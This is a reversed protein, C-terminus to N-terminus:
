QAVIFFFVLDNYSVGARRLERLLYFRKAAKATINDIHNSWKLDQRFTVGPIKATSLQAFELGDSVIPSYSPPWRKFCM